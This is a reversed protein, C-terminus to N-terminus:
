ADKTERRHIRMSWERSKRIWKSSFATDDLVLFFLGTPGLERAPYNIPPTGGYLWYWNDEPDILRYIVQLNQFAGHVLCANQINMKEYATLSDFFWDYLLTYMELINSKCFAGYRKVEKYCMDWFAWNVATKKVSDIESYFNGEDLITLLMRLELNLAHSIANFYGNIAFDSPVMEELLTVFNFQNQFQYARDILESYTIGCPLIDNYHNQIYVRISDLGYENFFLRPHEGRPVTTIIFDDFFIEANSLTDFTGVAFGQFKLVPTWDFTMISDGDIYLVVRGEEFM